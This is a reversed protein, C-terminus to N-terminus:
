HCVRKPPIFKVDRYPISDAYEGWWGALSIQKVLTNRISPHVMCYFNCYM